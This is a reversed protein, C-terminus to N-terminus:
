RGGQRIRPDVLAYVLDTLVNVTVYILAIVLVCAQVVPYDRGQIAEILLQGLGPWAFVAETIVAGGLLTGLQLGLLTVVPLLANRLGHAVVVRAPTLGKAHATRIFDEGLVELLTGRVMRSLVAAMATGLTLAPLVMAGAGENGSVPFWGLWLSFVLILIPGLAFNPVSVGLMAFGMAGRDWATGQRVAAIVGLPLAILLAVLLAAAALLASAPLREVLLNAVPRHSLLSTGLDGTLVGRLYATVQVWLPRDLGLSERLAARDAARASEGLMADVPDGPILHILTAVLVVVGLVVVAASFVRSILFSLM